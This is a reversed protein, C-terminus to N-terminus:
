DDYDSASPSIRQTSDSRTNHVTQDLTSFYSNHDKNISNFVLLTKYSLANSFTIIEGLHRLKLFSILSSTFM